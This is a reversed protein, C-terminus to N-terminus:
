KSRRRLAQENLKMMRTYTTAAQKQLKASETASVNSQRSRELLRERYNRLAEIEIDLAEAVDDNAIDKLDEQERSGQSDNSESPEKSGFIVNLVIFIVTFLVKFFVVYFQLILIFVRLIIYIANRSM